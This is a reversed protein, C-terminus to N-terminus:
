RIVSLAHLGECARRLRAPQESRETPDPPRSLLADDGSAHMETFAAEWGARPDDPARIVIGNEKAELEVEGSLGSQDLLSRPIRVGQSNGSRIIRSKM